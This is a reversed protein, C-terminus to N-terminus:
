QLVPGRALCPRTQPPSVVKPDIQLVPVAGRFRCWNHYKLVRNMKRAPWRRAIMRALKLLALKLLATRALMKLAARAWLLGTVTM